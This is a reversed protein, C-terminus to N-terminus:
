KIQVWSREPVHDNPQYSVEVLEVKEGVKLYRPPNVIVLFPIGDNNKVEVFGLNNIIRVPTTIVFIDDPNWATISPNDGPMTKVVSKLCPQLLFIVILVITMLIITIVEAKIVGIFKLFKKM